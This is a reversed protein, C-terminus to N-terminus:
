NRSARQEPPFPSKCLRARQSPRKRNGGAAGVSGPCALSSEHTAEHGLQHRTRFIRALSSQFESSQWVMARTRAYWWCMAGKRDRKKNADEIRTAGTAAPDCGTDVTRETLLPIAM